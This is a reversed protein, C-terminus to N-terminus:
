VGDLILLLILSLALVIVCFNAICVLNLLFFNAANPLLVLGQLFQFHSDICCRQIRFIRLRFNFIQSFDLDHSAEIM